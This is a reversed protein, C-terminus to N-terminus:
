SAAARPSSRDEVDQEVVGALVAGSRHGHADGLVRPEGHEDHAVGAVADRRRGAHKM